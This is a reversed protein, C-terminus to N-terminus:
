LTWPEAAKTELTDWFETLEQNSRFIHDPHRPNAANLLLLNQAFIERLRKTHRQHMAVWYEHRDM